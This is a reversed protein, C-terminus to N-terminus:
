TTPSAGATSFVVSPPADHSSCPSGPSTNASECILHRSAFMQSAVVCSPSRNTRVFLPPPKQSEAAADNTGNRASASGLASRTTEPPTSPMVTTDSLEPPDYTGIPDVSVPCNVPMDASLLDTAYAYPCFPESARVVFPPSEQASVSAAVESLTRSM